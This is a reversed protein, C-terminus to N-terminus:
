PKSRRTDKRSSSSYLKLAKNKKVIFVRPPINHSGMELNDDCRTFISVKNKKKKIEVNIPLNINKLINLTM